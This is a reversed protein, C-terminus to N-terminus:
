SRSNGAMTALRRLAMFILPQRWFFPVLPLYVWNASPLTGVYYDSPLTGVNLSRLTGDLSSRRSRWAWRM